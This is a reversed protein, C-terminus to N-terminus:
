KEMGFEGHNNYHAIIEHISQAEAETGDDYLLFVSKNLIDMQIAAEDFSIKKMGEWNYGSSEEMESESETEDPEDIHDFEQINWGLGYIRGYLYRKVSIKGDINEMEDFCDQSWRYIRGWVEKLMTRVGAKEITKTSCLQGLYYYMFSEIEKASMGRKTELNNNEM